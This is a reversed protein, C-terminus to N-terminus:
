EYTELGSMGQRQQELGRGELKGTVTVSGKHMQPKCGHIM